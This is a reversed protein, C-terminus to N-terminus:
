RTRAEAEATGGVRCLRTRSSVQNCALAAGVFIRELSGARRGVDADRKLARVGVTGRTLQPPAIDPGAAGTRDDRGCGAGRHLSIAVERGSESTHGQGLAGTVM